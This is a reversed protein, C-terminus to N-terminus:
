SKVMRKLIETTALATKAEVLSVSSWNMVNIVRGTPTIFCNPAWPRQDLTKM